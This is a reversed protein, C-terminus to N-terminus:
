GFFSEFLSQGFWKEEQPQEVAVMQYAPFSEQYAIPYPHTCVPSAYAQEVVTGPQGYQVPVALPMPAGYPSGTVAFSTAPAAYEVVPTAYTSAPALSELRPAAPPAADSVPAFSAAPAAYSVAPPAAFSVAPAALTVAPSSVVPSVVPAPAVYSAAPAAVVTPPPAAFSVAPAALTVGM